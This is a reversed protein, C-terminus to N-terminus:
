LARPGYGRSTGCESTRMKLEIDSWAYVVKLYPQTRWSPAIDLSIGYRSTQKLEASDSYVTSGEVGSPWSTTSSSGSDKTRGADDGALDVFLGIGAVIQGNDWRWGGAIQGLFNTRGGDDATDYTDTKM